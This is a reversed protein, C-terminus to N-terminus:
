NHVFCQDRRDSHIVDLGQAYGRFVILLRRERKERHRPATVLTVQSTIAVKVCVVHDTSNGAHTFAFSRENGDVIAELTKANPRAEQIPTITNTETLEKGKGVSANTDASVCEQFVSMRVKCEIALRIALRDINKSIASITCHVSAFPWFLSTLSPARAHVSRLCVQKSSRRAGRQSVDPLAKCLM